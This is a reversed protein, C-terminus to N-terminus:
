CNRDRLVKAVFRKTVDSKTARAATEIKNVDDQILSIDRPCHILMYDVVSKDITRGHDSFIKKIIPELLNEDPSNLRVTPINKLRSRLDPLRVSWEYPMSQDTLLLYPIDGNLAMNLLIFLSEESWKQADDLAIVKGRCEGIPVPEKPFLVRGKHSKAFAQALHSKGSGEGGVLTLVRVPWKHTNLLLRVAEKNCGSVIFSDFSKETPISLDLAIQGQNFSSSQKTM